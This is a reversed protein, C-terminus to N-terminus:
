SEKAGFSFKKFREEEDGLLMIPNKKTSKMKLLVEKKEVGM